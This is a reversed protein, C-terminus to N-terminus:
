KIVRSTDRIFTAVPFYRCHLGPRLPNFYVFRSDNHIITNIKNSGSLIKVITLYEFLNCLLIYLQTLPPLLIYRCIYM